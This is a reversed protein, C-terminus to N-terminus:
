ADVTYTEIRTVTEVDDMAFEDALAQAAQEAREKTSYVGIVVYEYEDDGLGQALLVYAHKM